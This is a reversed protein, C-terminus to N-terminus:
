AIPLDMQRDIKNGDVGFMKSPSVSQRLFPSVIQQSAFPMSVTQSSTKTSGPPTYSNEELSSSSSHPPSSHKRTFQTAPLTGVGAPSGSGTKDLTTTATTTPASNHRTVQPPSAMKIPGLSKLAAARAPSSVLVRARVWVKPIEDMAPTGKRNDKSSDVISEIAPSLVMIVPRGDHYGPPSKERESSDTKKPQQPQEEMGRPAQVHCLRMYPHSSTFKQDKLDGLDHLRLPTPRSWIRCSFRLTEDILDHLRRELKGIGAADQEGLLFRAPGGLFKEKLKRAYNLRSEILIRRAENKAADLPDKMSMGSEALLRMLQARWDHVTVDAYQKQASLLMHYLNEMQTQTPLGLASAANGLAQPLMSTILPPPFHPSGPTPAYIPRMPAIDNFLSLDMRFSTAIPETGPHPVSPSELTGASIATFVWFPSALIETSIFDALLGQLLLQTTESSNTPLEEPLTKDENLKVFEKVGECLEALQLPHLGECLRNHGRHAYDQIWVRRAHEQEAFWHIIDKDTQVPAVRTPNAIALQLMHDELEHIRAEYERERQRLQDRWQKRRVDHHQKLQNFQRLLEQNEALLDREIRQLAAVRQYLGRNELLLEKDPDSPTQQMPTQVIPEPSQPSQQQTLYMNVRSKALERETAASRETPLGRLSPSAAKSHTSESRDRASGTPTGSRQVSASREQKLDRISGHEPRTRSQSRSKRVRHQTRFVTDALEAASPFHNRDTDGFEVITSSPTDPVDDRQPALLNTVLPLNLRADISSLAQASGNSSGSDRRLAAIRDNRENRENRENLNSATLTATSSNPSSFTRSSLAEPSGKGSSM